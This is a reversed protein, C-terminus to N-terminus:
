VLPCVAEITNSPPSQNGDPSIADLQFLYHGPMDAISAEAGKAIRVVDPIWCEVGRDITAVHQRHVHADYSLCWIRIKGGVPLDDPDSWELQKVGPISPCPVWGPTWDGPEMNRLAGHYNNGSIDFLTNGAGTCFAWSGQCSGDGLPDAGYVGNTGGFLIDVDAQVLNRNYNRITDMRAGTFTGPAAGRSAFTLDAVSIIPATIPTNVMVVNGPVTNVYIEMGGASNNGNYTVVIHSFFFLTSFARRIQLAEGGTARQILWRINHDFLSIEYGDFTGLHMKGLLIQLPSTDAPDIWFEWAQPQNYDYSLVNGLLVDENVGDFNLSFNVPIPPAEDRILNTPACPFALGPTLVPNGIDRIGTMIARQNDRIFSDYGSLVPKPQPIVVRSGPERSSAPDDAPSGAQAVEEWQDRQPQTLDDNWAKSLATAGARATAQRPSSPNSRNTSRSRIYQTGRCSSYVHEGQRGSIRSITPGPKITAM